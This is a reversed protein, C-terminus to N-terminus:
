PNPYPNPNALGLWLGLGLGLGLGIGLGLGLGLGIVRVRVRVRVLTATSSAEAAALSGPPNSRRNSRKTELRSPSPNAGLLYSKYPTPGSAAAPLRTKLNGRRFSCTHHSSVKQQSKGAVEVSCRRAAGSDRLSDASDRLPTSLFWPLQVTRAQQKPSQIPPIDAASLPLRGAPWLLVVRPQTPVPVPSCSAPSWFHTLLTASAPCIGRFNGGDSEGCSAAHWTLCVFQM